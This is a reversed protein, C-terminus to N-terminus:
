RRVRKNSREIADSLVPLGSAKITRLINQDTPEKFLDFSVLTALGYIYVWRKMVLDKLEKPSFSSFEKLNKFIRIHYRLIREISVAGYTPNLCLGHFLKPHERAFVVVGVGMNLFTHHSYSQNTYTLLIDFIQNLVAKDLAKRTKFQSYIPQPSGEFYQSVKRVSLASFGEEEVCQIAATIISDSTYKVSPPM